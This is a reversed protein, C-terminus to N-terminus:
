LGLSARRMPVEEIGAVDYLGPLNKIIVADHRPTEILGKSRLQTFTRSISEATSGLHDAIDARSMPLDVISGTKGEAGWRHAISLLFSALRETVRRRAIMVIQDNHAEIEDTATILMSYCLNSQSNLLQLFHARDFACLKAERVVEATSYAESGQKVGGLVDGPGLFGLVTRSGNPLGRCLKILGDVILFVYKLQDGQEFVLEHSKLKMTTAIAQLHGLSAEDLHSCLSITRGPCHTCRGSPASTTCRLGGNSSRTVYERNM